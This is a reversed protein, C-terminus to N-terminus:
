FTALLKKVKEYVEELDEDDAEGLWGNANGVNLFVDAVGDDFCNNLEEKQDASLNEYMPM